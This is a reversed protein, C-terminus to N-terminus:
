FALDDTAAKRLKAANLTSLGLAADPDNAFEPHQMLWDAAAKQMAKRMPTAPQDSVLTGNTDYRKVRVAPETASAKAPAPQPAPAPAAIQQEQAESREAKRREYNAKNIELIRAKIREINRNHAEASELGLFVDPNAMFDKIGVNIRSALELMQALLASTKSSMSQTPDLTIGGKWSLEGRQQKITVQPCSPATLSIHRVSSLFSGVIRIGNPLTIDCRTVGAGIPLPAEEAELTGLLSAGWNDLAVELLERTANAIDKLTGLQQINEIGFAADFRQSFRQWLYANLRDFDWESQTYHGEDNRTGPAMKFQDLEGASLAEFFVAKKDRNKWAIDRLGYFLQKYTFIAENLSKSAEQKLAAAENTKPAYLGLEKTNIFSM